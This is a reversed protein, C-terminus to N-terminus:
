STVGSSEAKPLSLSLHLHCHYAKSSRWCQPPVSVLLSRLNSMTGQKRRLLKPKYREMLKSRTEKIICVFCLHPARWSFHVVAPRGATSTITSIVMSTCSTVHIEILATSKLTFKPYPSIHCSHCYSGLLSYNTRRKKNPHILYHCSVRDCYTTKVKNATGRSVVHKRINLAWSSTAPLGKCLGM